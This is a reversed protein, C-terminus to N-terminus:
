RLKNKPSNPSMDPMRSVDIPSPRKRWRPAYKDYEYALLMERQKISLEAIKSDAPKVLIRFM